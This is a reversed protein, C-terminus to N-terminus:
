QFTAEQLIRAKTNQADEIRKLPVEAKIGQSLQDTLATVTSVLMQNSQLLQANVEKSEKVANILEPDQAAQTGAGGTVLGGTAYHRAANISSTAAAFNIAQYSRSQYAPKVIGGGAFGPVGLARFFAPGGAKNQQEENLVVEGTRITALVNDGNAQAPINPGTVVKGNPNLEVKGGTAYQQGQIAAVKAMGLAVDFGIAAMSLFNPPIPAGYNSLDTNVAKAIDILAQATDQKKKRNFQKRELDEKKKDSDADLKAVEINYQQQSITRQKLQRDLAQKRKDNAKLENDLAKQEIKNKNDNFQAIVSLASSFYDLAFGALKTYHDLETQEKQQRYKDEIGKKLDEFETTYQVGDAKAKDEKQKLAALEQKEQEDLLAKQATLQAKSGPAANNVARQARSVAAEAQLQALLQENALKQKNAAILDAVEKQLEEKKFKTVDAAAKEVNASYDQATQIQAQKSAIDIARLNAEYEAQNTEGNVFHEAEQKKLGEFYNASDGLAQDYEKSTNSKFEKQSAETRKKIEQDILFAIAANKDKELNIMKALAAGTGATLEAYKHQLRAIESQDSAKGIQQLEFQFEKLKQLLQDRKKEEEAEAKLNVTTGTDNGPTGTSGGGKIQNIEAQLDNYAKTGEKLKTLMDELTKLVAAKSQVANIQEELSAGDLRKVEAQYGMQDSLLQKFKEKAATVEDATAQRSVIPAGFQTTDIENITYSGTKIIQEMIRKQEALQENTKKLAETNENIAGKNVVKLRATETNIFDRVRDTSIAIANGYADFQTVAGPIAQTIQSIISKMEAQEDSSLKTKSKLEDYRNALPLMNTHLQVVKGTLDDFNQTATKTPEVLATMGNVLNKLFSNDGNLFNASLVNKFKEWANSLTNTNVAAQQQAVGQEKIQQTLETYRPLGQLLIQAANFNEKGFVQVLATANNQIKSLEKLRDELSLSKDKLVDTNIGAQKLAELATKPLADVANLALFVNRLQTGAEAGKIGKEAMLEIAASSEYIDINSSKAQAGFKLLAETVEPVEAAGYKAAAALADVYKQADQAPAGFQNLADTLRTAADPLELGAADSLLKAAKTVAVLSEKQELLEPKASAILKFAEVYDVASQKGQKSLDIAAEKLFGLDKGTAGTISSLNALSNEFQTNMKFVSALGDKIASLAQMALQAGLNAVFAGAKGLMGTQATEVGEIGTRMRDLEATANRFQAIKDKFGPMDESMRGLENRLQRVLTTQQQLSPRLGSNIATTVQDIQSQTRGLEAMAATMNRGAAQGQNISQTLRDAKQQLKVLALEAAAQDIYISVTRNSVDAM